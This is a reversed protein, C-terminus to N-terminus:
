SALFYRACGFALALVVGCAFKAQYRPPDSATARLAAGVMMACGVALPTLFLAWARAAENTIMHHKFVLVSLAGFVGGLLAYVVIEFASASDQTGPQSRRLRSHGRDTFWEAILQLFFEAILEFIFELM